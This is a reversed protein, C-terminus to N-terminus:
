AVRNLARRMRRHPIGAEEYVEGEAVFGLGRYFGEVAVQASILVERHGARAAEDLLAQMLRRGAGSGRMGRQVAVRGVHGDPLLRGCGVTMGARNVLLVHRSGADDADWELEPPVGQEAVFVETRLRAAEAGVEDWSGARALLAPEGRAAADFVARLAEPVTQPRAQRDTWVQVMACDALLRDQAFVGLTLRLSSRGVGDLRVGIDLLDDLRAPAHHTLTSTKVLVDGGLAHLGAPYPLGLSRWWGAIATDAYLLYHGNFVVGQLDVEAWRVQIRHLYAFDERTM